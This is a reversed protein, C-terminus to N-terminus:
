IEEFRSFYCQVLLQKNCPYSVIQTFYINIREVQIKGANRGHMKYKAKFRNIHMLAVDVKYDFKNQQKAIHPVIYYNIAFDLQVLAHM